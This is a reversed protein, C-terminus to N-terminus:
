KLSTACAIPRAQRSQSGSASSSTASVILDNIGDDTADATIDLVNGRGTTNGRGFLPTAVGAESYTITTTPTTSLAPSAGLFLYVRSQAADTAVLDNIGDGNVDGPAHIVSGFTGSTIPSPISVATFGAPTAAGYVVSVLGAGSSQGGFAFDDFGDDNVDGLAVTAFALTQPLTLNAFLLGVFVSRTAFSSGNGTSDFARVAINHTAQMPELLDVTFTIAGGQATATGIPTAYNGATSALPVSGCGSLMATSLLALVLGTRKGIRQITM